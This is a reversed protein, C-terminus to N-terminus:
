GKVGGSTLGTIIYRQFIFALLVPPISAVVGGAAMAAYDIAHRGAFESIAVPVTKAAYTSTFILPFFFEDWAAMFVFIGASVLGPASLPLVIRFLAGLRSTGDIRAAEELEKPITQFFNMLIWIAFPLTFSLYLAVLGAKKDLLNMNKMVVYLSIMTSIAPLMRTAIIGMMLQTRGPFKLRAFAYAALAGVVLTIATVSVSVIASNLMAFKFMQATESLGTIDPTVLQKFKALTPQTPIWHPPVSTLESTTSISSIILWLYPGIIFAVLVVSALM